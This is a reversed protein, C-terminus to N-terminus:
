IRLITSIVINLMPIVFIMTEIIHWFTHTQLVNGANRQDKRKRRTSLVVLNKKLFM